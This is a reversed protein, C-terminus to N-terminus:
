LVARSSKFNSQLQRIRKRLPKDNPQIELAKEFFYIADNWEEKEEYIEGIEFHVEGSDPVMKLADKLQVLAPNMMRRNRLSRATDLKARTFSKKGLEEGQGESIMKQWLGFAHNAQGANLYAWGLKDMVAEDTPTEELHLEFSSIAGMWNQSKYAELGLAARSGEQFLPSDETSAGKGDVPAPKGGVKTVKPQEGAMTRPANATGIRVQTEVLKDRLGEDGTQNLYRGGFHKHTEM